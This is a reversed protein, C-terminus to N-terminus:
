LDSGGTISDHCRKFNSLFSRFIGVVDVNIKMFSQIYIMGGSDMECKRELMFVTKCGKLNSLCFNLITEVGTVIKV